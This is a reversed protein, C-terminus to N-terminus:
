QVKQVAQCSCVTGLMKAETRHKSLDSRVEISSYLGLSPNIHVSDRSFNSYIFFIICSKSSVLHAESSSDENGNEVHNISFM